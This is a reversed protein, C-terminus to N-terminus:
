CKQVIDLGSNRFTVTEGDHLSASNQQTQAFDQSTYMCVLVDHVKVTKVIKKKAYKTCRKHLIKPKEHVNEQAFHKFYLNQCRLFIWNLFTQVGAM